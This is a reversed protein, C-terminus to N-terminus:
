KFKLVQSELTAMDVMIAKGPVPQLNTRKQYETQSQWTGANLALVGKYNIIGVTHVHGCHLIDPAESIVFHDQKEPAISVRGGYIPSLHRRRLMEVMPRTPDNYSFGPLSAILDDMSRGHYILVRRGGLELTAPNGVFDVGSFMKSIREPLRPQPEAQRVADHNGPSIIVRIHKPIGRFYEAAREYQEYIDKIELEQEQDPYVGIGDVIDGAVVVYGISSIDQSDRSEGNLWDIFKEWADELFTKSGVHIDSVFVAKRRDVEELVMPKSNLSPLDPWIISGVILMNGDRNLVGSVGLVEDLLVNRSIEFLERDKLVLVPFSGTPDELEILRHGNSTTRIDSVMGIISIQGEVNRRKLSEIPRANIRKRVMESLKSYRDRFYKVFEGYEGICTSQNTIDSIVRVEPKPPSLIQPRPQPAPPKSPPSDLKIHETGVVLIAGDLSELIQQILKESGENGLFEVAEGNIQYGAEAFRLIIEGREM